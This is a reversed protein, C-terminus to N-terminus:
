RQQGAAVKKMEARPGCETRLVGPIADMVSRTRDNTAQSGLAPWQRIPLPAATPTPRRRLPAPIQVSAIQPLEEGAHQDRTTYGDLGDLRHEAAVGGLGRGRPAGGVRRHRGPGLPVSEPAPAPPEDEARPHPRPAHPARVGRFGLSRSPASTPEWSVPPKMCIRSRRGSDTPHIGIVMGCHQCLGHHHAQAALGYRAEGDVPLADIVGLRELRALTRYVTAINPPGPGLRDRIAAASLHDLEEALLRAIEVPPARSGDAVRTCAGVCPPKSMM